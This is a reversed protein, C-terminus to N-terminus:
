EELLGEQRMQDIFAQVATAIEAETGDYERLLQAVVDQETTEDRLLELIRMAEENLNLVAHLEAANGGIPVGIIEGDLEMKEIMYKCKM